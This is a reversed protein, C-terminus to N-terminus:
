KKEELLKLVADLKARLEDIQKRTDAEAADAAAKARRLDDEAARQVETSYAAEAARRVEEQLKTDLREKVEAAKATADKRIDEAQRQLHEQVDHLHKQVDQVRDDQPQGPVEFRRTFTRLPAEGGFSRFLVDGKGEGPPVDRKGLTVAVDKVEGKRLYTLKVSEGEKHNAVLVNLQRPHILIQDDLKMLVDSKQLGAKEAPSGPAVGEVGLGTDEAIPLHVALEHPVPIASVGLFTVPGTRVPADFVDGSINWRIPEALERIKVGPGGGEFFQPGGAAGGIMAGAGAGPGPGAGPGDPDGASLFVGGGIAHGEGGGDDGFEITKREERGDEGRTVIIAKGRSTSQVRPDPAQEQAAALSSLAALLCYTMRSTKM